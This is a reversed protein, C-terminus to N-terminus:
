CAKKNKICGSFCAQICQCMTSRSQWSLVAWDQLLIESVPSQHCSDELGCKRTPTTVWGVLSVKWQMWFCDLSISCFSILINWRLHGLQLKWINRMTLGWMQCLSLLTHQWWFEPIHGFCSNKHSTKRERLFAVFLVCDSATCLRMLRWSFLQPLQEGPILAWTEKNSQPGQDRLPEYIKSYVEGRM